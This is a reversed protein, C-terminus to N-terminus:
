PGAHGPGCRRRVRRAGVGPLAGAALLSLWIMAPALVVREVAGYYRTGWTFRFAASAAVTLVLVVASSLRAVRSRDHAATLLMATVIAVGGVVTAYVHVAGATTHPDGPLDKSALGAVVACAGYICRSGAFGSPSRRWRALARAGAIVAVGYLIFAIRMFTAGRQGPSALRSVTDRWASYGPTGAAALTVAVALAHM